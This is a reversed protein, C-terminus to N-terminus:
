VGSNGEVVTTKLDGINPVALYEKFEELIRQVRRRGTL